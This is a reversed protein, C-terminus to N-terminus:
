RVRGAITGTVGNVFRSSNEGGFRKSLEVAENIAVKLPVEPQYMLEYVAIRLVNRDVVPIQHIPFAPASEEIEADIVEKTSAIGQILRLAYDASEPAPEEALLSRELVNDPPHGAVDAEYLAQLALIRGKHRLHGPSQKRKKAPPQSQEPTEM